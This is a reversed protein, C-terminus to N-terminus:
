VLLSPKWQRFAIRSLYLLIFAIGLSIVPYTRPFSEIWGEKSGLFMVTTLL